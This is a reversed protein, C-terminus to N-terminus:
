AQGANTFAGWVIAQAAKDVDADGLVIAAHKGGLELTLPHLKDASMKMIAKGGAVSGTFVVRDVDGTVLAAAEAKDGHVFSVIGEPLGAERFLNEIFSSIAPTKPSPKVVVTNGAALANLIADVPIAVPFNWPSIIAIVGLPEHVDYAR